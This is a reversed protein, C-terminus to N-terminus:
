KIRKAPNGVVVSNSPVDKTVVAGAGVVAGVGISLNPLIIAGSGIQVYDGINVRGLLKCAPSLEVFDGIKVDHTIIVNYYILSGKGILVDNSIHVGSLINCGEKITSYKGINTESSVTSQLVGGLDKFQKYLKYRIKSNGIGLTFKNSSSTFFDQAETKTKLIPYKGYLLEPANKTVDDYFALQELESSNLSQLVEKAFGKAGVILM